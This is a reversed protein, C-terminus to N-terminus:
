KGKYIKKLLNLDKENIKKDNNVDLFEYITYYYKYLKERGTSDVGKYKAIIRGDYISLAEYNNIYLTDKYKVITDRVPNHEFWTIVSDLDKRWVADVSDYNPKHYIVRIKPKDPTCANMIIGIISLVIIIFIIFLAKISEEREM